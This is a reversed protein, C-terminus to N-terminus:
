LRCIISSCYCPYKTKLLEIVNCYPFNFLELPVTPAPEDASLVMVNGIVNEVKQLAKQWQLALLKVFQIPVIDVVDTVNLNFM